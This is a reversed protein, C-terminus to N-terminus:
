KDQKQFFLLSVAMWITGVTLSADSINFAPWHYSGIFFDLFDVVERLRLRDALNGLAGGIILSLGLRLHWESEQLKIFWYILLIIAIITAVVLIYFGLNVDPRNMIGFVMGRNRVHVINFFGKIVTLSEHLRLKHIVILKSIQDLAFIILILLIFLPYPKKM